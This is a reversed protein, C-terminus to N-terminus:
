FHRHCQSDVLVCSFWSSVRPYVSREKEPSKKKEWLQFFLVFQFCPQKTVSSDLLSINRYSQPSFAGLTKEEYLKIESVIGYYHHYILEIKNWSVIKTPITNSSCGWLVTRPHVALREWTRPELIQPCTDSFFIKKPPCPRVFSLESAFFNLSILNEFDIQGRTWIKSRDDQTKCCLMWCVFMHEKLQGHALAHKPPGRFGRPGRVGRFGAQTCSCSWFEM